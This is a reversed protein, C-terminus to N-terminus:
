GKSKLEIAVYSWIVTRPADSQESLPLKVDWRIGNPQVQAATVRANEPEIMEVEVQIKGLLPPCFAIHTFALEQDTALTVRVAGSIAEGQGKITSRRQEQRASPDTWLWPLETEQAEADQEELESDILTESANANSSGRDPDLQATSESVPENESVKSSPPVLNPQLLDSVPASKRTRRFTRFLFPNVWPGLASFFLEFGIAIWLFVLGPVHKHAITLAVGCFVLSLSPLFLAVLGNLLGLENSNSNRRASLSIWRVACSLIPLVVALSLLLKNSPHAGRFHGTVARSFLMVGFLVWVALPWISYRHVLSGLKQWLSMTPNAATLMNVEIINL